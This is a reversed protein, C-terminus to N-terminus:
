NKRIESAVYKRNLKYISYLANAFAICDGVPVLIGNSPTVISDPGGCSTAVVPKGCALAEILVVGFTEFNSPLAFVDCHIMERYVQDRELLGLFSVQESINLRDALQQLATLFHGTGGIRLTVDTIGKFKQAFARLLMSHNKLPILGGISLISFSTKPEQKPLTQDEFVSDIVNPICPFVRKGNTFRNLAIGLSPSVVATALSNKFAQEALGKQWRFLNNTLYVSSHETLVYKLKTKKFADNGFAGAYLSNHCHILDPPGHQKLYARLLRNGERRWLYWIFPTRRLTWAWCNSSYIPFLPETNTLGNRPKKFLSRLSRPSPAIVGVQIGRAHLAAAQAAQFIGALPEDSTLYRSSPIILIHM